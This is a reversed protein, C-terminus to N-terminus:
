YLYVAGAGILSNDTQDVGIGSAGGGEAPGGVALTTGDGSLAVARGFRDGTGTNSAKVYAHQTWVSGSRAFVYVAGATTVSNDLQNGNIGTAASAEAPAGVALLDGGSSLAVSLGFNDNV